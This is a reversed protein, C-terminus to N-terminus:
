LNGILDIYYKKSLKNKIAYELEKAMKLNSNELNKLLKNNRETLRELDEKSPPRNGKSSNSSKSTFVLNWIDDSYMFSWPIVHDISIDGVDLVEGTYFDQILEKHYYRLLFNKYKSLNARKISKNSSNSVKKSINPSSNYKELLQVWKFNMLKILIYGYDKLIAIDNCSFQLTKNKRDLIYLNIVSDKVNMFRYAVNQNAITVFKKIKRKVISSYSNLVFEAKDFWVPYNMNVIHVYEDIMERIDQEMVPNNGQSLNFFFTQNWYYRMMKYTIDEEKIFVYDDCEQYENLLICEIIAKGWAVKYTNDNRMQEIVRIWDQLYKEM